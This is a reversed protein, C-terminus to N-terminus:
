LPHAGLQTLLTKLLTVERQQGEKMATAMEVVEHAESQALVADVMHIGGLHHRLMFQCFLVDFDRGTSAKLKELEAPSAMGPMLGDDGVLGAGDSMWTMRPQSGTPLLNWQALWASMMGIQAQQTLAIDYGLSRLEPLQAREYAFMAMEVAQAHHTSMDRAFGAEASEDGPQRNWLQTGAFGVLIGLVAALAIVLLKRSRTPTSPEVSETVPTTM